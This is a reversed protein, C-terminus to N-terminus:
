WCSPSTNRLAPPPPPSSSPLLLPFLVFVEALFVGLVCNAPNKVSPDLFIPLAPLPKNLIKPSLGKIKGRPKCIASIKRSPVPFQAWMGTNCLNRDYIDSFHLSVSPFKCMCCPVSTEIWSELSSWIKFIDGFPSRSPFKPKSSIWTQWPSFILCQLSYPLCYSLIENTHILLILLSM